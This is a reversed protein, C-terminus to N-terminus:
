PAIAVRDAPRQTVSLHAVQAPTLNQTFSSVAAFRDPGRYGPPAWLPIHTVVAMNLTGDANVIHPPAPPQKPTWTRAPNAGAGFPGSLLTVTVIGGVMLSPVSLKWSIM